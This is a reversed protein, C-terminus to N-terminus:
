KLQGRLVEGQMKVLGLHVPDRLTQRFDDLERLWLVVLAPPLPAKSPDGVLLPRRMLDKGVERIM